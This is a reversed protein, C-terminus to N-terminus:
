GLAAAVRRQQTRALSVVRRKAIGGGGVLSFARGSRWLVITFEEDQFKWWYIKGEDGLRLPWPRLHLQSQRDAEQVFWGFMGQAGRQGRFVDVRSSITDNVHDFQVQYGALHGWTQYKVRLEPFERADRALTRMGSKERNLCYVSPVESQRLVLKAPDIGAALVASSVVLAVVAVALFRM